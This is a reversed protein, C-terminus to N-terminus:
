MVNVHVLVVICVNLVTLLCISSVVDAVQDKKANCIILSFMMLLYINSLNTCFSLDSLSTCMFTYFIVTCVLSHALIVIFVYM